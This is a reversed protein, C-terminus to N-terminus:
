EFTLAMLVDVPTALLCSLSSPVPQDADGRRCGISWFMPHLAATQAVSRPEWKLYRMAKMWGKPMEIKPNGNMQESGLFGM